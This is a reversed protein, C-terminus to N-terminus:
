AGAQLEAKGADVELEKAELKEKEQQRWQESYYGGLALLQEHTGYEAVSGDRLVFIIDAEKVTTLRHAIMLVTRRRGSMTPRRLAEMVREETRGDLASTAEDALLIPRSDLLARAIAVRQREGGSLKCGREGVSSDYGEPMREIAEDIQALSAAKQVAEHSATPSSYAINYRVSDNFLVPDQPIVGISRRVSDIQLSRLPQGDLLVVGRTPNFFRFLLRFITSKGCGSAGVFAVVSGGPITLSLGKLVGGMHKKVAVTEKEPGAESGPTKVEVKQPYEFHVDRFEIAGGEFVYPVADPEDKVTCETDMLVIMAMMNQMATQVDRYIMGLYSLPLYIQMLLGDVLVLSGVTMTGALVACTSLYLSLVAATVFILQQGVNLLAITQDLIVLQQNMNKLESEIRQCEFQESGFYKVTEYNLISDVIKGSVRSDYYNFRARFKARWNSVAITWVIYASVATIAIGIFYGGGQSYLAGGVLVMEFMTPLVLFLLAYSLSWFARTGRDLDKTLAGTERNLHFPLDLSHMKQVMQMALNCSGASGVPAFFVNKMEDTISGAARCFTYAILFGFATLSFPGVATVLQSGVASTAAVSAPSLSDIIGKLAFPVMVKLVKAGLVCGVSLVVLAKIKWQGRPWLQEWVMQMVRRIPISESEIAKMKEEGLLLADDPPKSDTSSFFVKAVSAGAAETAFSAPPDKVATEPSLTHAAPQDEQFSAPTEEPKAPSATSSKDLPLGQKPKQSFDEVKKLWVTSPHLFSARGGSTISPSSLPSGCVRGTSHCLTNASATFSAAPIMASPVSTYRPCASCSWWSTSTVVKAERSLRFHRGIDWSRLHLRFGKM